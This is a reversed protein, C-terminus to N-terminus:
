YCSQSVQAAMRPFPGELAAVAERPSHLHYHCYGLLGSAQPGSHILLEILQPSWGIGSVWRPLGRISCGTFWRMTGPWLHSSSPPWSFVDTEHCPMWFRGHRPDPGRPRLSFLFVLMGTKLPNQTPWLISSIIIILKFHRIQTSKMHTNLGGFYYTARNEASPPQPQYKDTSFLGSGRSLTLTPHSTHPPFFCFFINSPLVSFLFLLFFYDRCFFFFGVM